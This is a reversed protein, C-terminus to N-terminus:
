DQFRQFITPGLEYSPNKTDNFYHQEGGKDPVAGVNLYDENPIRRPTVRVVEVARGRAHHKHVKTESAMAVGSVTVLALALALRAQRPRFM